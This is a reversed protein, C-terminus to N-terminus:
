TLASYPSVTSYAIRAAVIRAQGRARPKSDATLPHVLEQGRGRPARGLARRQGRGPHRAAPHRRRDDQHDPRDDHEVVPLLVGPRHEHQRGAVRDDGRAHRHLDPEALLDREGLRHEEADAGVAHGHQVGVVVHRHQEGRHDHHDARRQQRQQEARHDGAGGPERQGDGRQHQRQDRDAVHGAGVEEAARDARRQVARQPRRRGRRGGTASTPPPRMTTTSSAATTKMAAM